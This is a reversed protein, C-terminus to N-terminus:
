SKGRWLLFSPQVHQLSLVRGSQLVSCIQFVSLYNWHKMSSTWAQFVPKLKDAKHVSLCSGMLPDLPVTGPLLTSCASAQFSLVWRNQVEKSLGLLVTKPLFEKFM